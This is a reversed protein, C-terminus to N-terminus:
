VAFRPWVSRPCTPPPNTADGFTCYGLRVKQEDETGVASFYAKGQSDFLRLTMYSYAGAYQNLDTYEMRLFERSEAGYWVTHDLRIGSLGTVQVLGFLCASTKTQSSELLLEWRNAGLHRLYMQRPAACAVAYGSGEGRTRPAPKYGPPRLDIPSALNAPKTDSPPPTQAYAPAVLVLSMVLALILRKM